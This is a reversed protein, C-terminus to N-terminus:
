QTDEDWHDGIIAFKLEKKSGINVKKTKMPKMIDPIELEPGNLEHYGESEAITSSALINKRKQLLTIVNWHM